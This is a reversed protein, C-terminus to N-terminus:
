EYRLAQMPDVRSARTAPIAGAAFAVLALLLASVVTVLPDTGALGFLMSRALRGLGIAGAIGILAGILTMVGVQGLV